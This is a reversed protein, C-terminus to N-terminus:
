RWTFSKVQVPPSDVMSWESDSESSDGAKTSESAKAQSGALLPKITANSDALDPQKYIGNKKIPDVSQWDGGELEILDETDEFVEFPNKVAPAPTHPMYSRKPRHVLSFGEADTDSSTDNEEISAHGTPHRPRRVLAYSPEPSDPIPGFRPTADPTEAHIEYLFDGLAAQEMRVRESQTQEKTRLRIIDIAGEDEFGRRYNTRCLDTHFQRLEYALRQFEESHGLGHYLFCSICYHLVTDILDKQASLYEYIFRIALVLDQPASASSCALETARIINLHAQVMLTPVEFLDGLRCLEAHVLLSCTEEEDQHNYTIYNGTYLFRLFRAILEISTAELSHHLGRHNYEFCLGLLPCAQSIIDHDLNEFTFSESGSSTFVSLSATGQSFNIFDLNLSPPQQHNFGAAHVPEGYGSAPEWAM